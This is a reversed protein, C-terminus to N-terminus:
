RKDVVRGLKRKERKDSGRLVKLEDTPEESKPASNGVVHGSGKLISVKLEFRSLESQAFQRPPGTDEPVHIGQGCNVGLLTLLVRTPAIQVKLGGKLLRPIKQIRKRELTGSALAGLM